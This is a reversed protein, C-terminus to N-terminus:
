KFAYIKQLYKLDRFNGWSKYLVEVVQRGFDTEGVIFMLTTDFNISNTM